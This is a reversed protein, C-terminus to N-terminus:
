RLSAADNQPTCVAQRALIYRNLEAEVFVRNAFPTTSEQLIAAITKKVLRAGPSRSSDVVIPNSGHDLPRQARYRDVRRVPRDARHRRFSAKRVGRDASHPNCEAQLRVTALRELQRVIRQEDVLYAIDDAKVKGRGVSGEDEADILLALDLREIAFLWDQRHHGAYRFTARVAVHPM